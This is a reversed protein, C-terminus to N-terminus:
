AWLVDQRNLPASADARTWSSLNFLLRMEGSLAFMPLHLACLSENYQFTIQQFQEM